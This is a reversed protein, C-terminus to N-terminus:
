DSQYYQNKLGESKGVPKGLLGCIIGFFSAVIFITAQFTIKLTEAILQLVQNKVANILGPANHKRFFYLRNRVLSFRYTYDSNSRKIGDARPVARHEVIANPTFVIRGGTKSVRFFFDTEELHATGIFNTDFGGISLAVLRKVSCNGGPLHPVDIAKEICIDWEAKIIDNNFDLQAIPEKEKVQKWPDYIIRGGVAVVSSEKYEQIIGKLWGPRVICDDDLFAVIEGSAKSIGVNRGLGSSRPINGLRINIITPFKKLLNQTYETSSTDVVIIEYSAGTQKILTSLCYSLIEERDRTPIIISVLPSVIGNKDHNQDM